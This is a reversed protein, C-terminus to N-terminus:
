AGEPIRATDRELEPEYGVVPIVGKGLDNWQRKQLGLLDGGRNKAHDLPNWWDATQENRGKVSFAISHGDRRLIFTNTAKDDFFHDGDVPRVKISFENSENKISEIKVRDYGSPGPLNIRIQDGVQPPRSAVPNGDKDLLKFEASLPVGLGQKDALEDWNNIDLLRARAVEFNSEARSWSYYTRKVQYNTERGIKQEPIATPEAINKLQFDKENFEVAGVKLNPISVDHNVFITQLSEPYLGNSMDLELELPEMDMNDFNFVSLASGGSMETSYKIRDLLAKEDHDIKGDYAVQRGINIMDIEGISGDQVADRVTTYVRSSVNINM